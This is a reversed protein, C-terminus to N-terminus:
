YLSPSVCSGLKLKEKSESKLWQADTGLCHMPQMKRSHTMLFLLRKEPPLKYAM